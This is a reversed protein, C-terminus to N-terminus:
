LLQFYKSIRRRDISVTSKEGAVFGNKRSRRSVKWDLVRGPPAPRSPIARQKSRQSSGVDGRLKLAIGTNGGTQRRATIM